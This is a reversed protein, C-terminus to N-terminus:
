NHGSCCDNTHVHTAGGLDHFVKDLIRKMEAKFKIDHYEMVHARVKKPELDTESILTDIATKLAEKNFGNVFNIGYGSVWKDLTKELIVPRGTAMTGLAISPFDEKNFSILAKSAAMVPAHEGSCKNGFFMNTPNKEKLENLHDDVGIFQFDFKWEKMWEILYRAEELSVGKAEVLFFHHKFMEKPFLGYDSVRFPAPVLEAKINEKKLTEILDNRSVLVLDSKSISNSIWGKVFPSFLKQFINKKFKRDLDLDYIYTIQKTNECKKFGQSFGKTVNIILDFECSVFLNHALSPLKNYHAYFDSETNVVNSLFTSKISRQEIHGLIQGQKHAFTYITAEPFVECLSEIIETYHTRNLLYECTIAIKM